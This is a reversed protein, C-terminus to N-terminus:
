FSLLLPLLQNNNSLVWTCFNATLFFGYAGIKERIEKKKKLIWCFMIFISILFAYKEQMILDSQSSIEDRSIWLRILDNSDLTCGDELASSLKNVVFRHKSFYKFSPQLGQYNVM